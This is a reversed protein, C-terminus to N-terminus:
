VSMFMCVCTFLIVYVILYECILVVCSCMLDHFYFNIFCYVFLYYFYNSNMWVLWRSGGESLNGVM